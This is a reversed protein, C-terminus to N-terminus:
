FLVILGYATSGTAKIGTGIIAYAGGSVVPLTVDNGAVTLVLNGGTAVYIMRSSKGFSQDGVVASALYVAVDGSPHISTPTTAM